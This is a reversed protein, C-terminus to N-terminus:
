AGQERCQALAELLRDLQEETHSASLTVRLRAGGEPVTPPRIASVFIGRQELAQSLALARDAAGVLIPQIPTCSDMLEFGLQSAGQRFRRILQQLRERRWSEERM